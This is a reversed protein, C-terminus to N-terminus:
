AIAGDAWRARRIQEVADRQAPSDLRATLQDLDACPPASMGRLVDGVEELDGTDLARRLDALAHTKGTGASAELVTTGGPLPATPDFEPIGSM